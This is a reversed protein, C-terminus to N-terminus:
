TRSLFHDSPGDKELSSAIIHRYLLNKGRPFAHGISLTDLFGGNKLAKTMRINGKWPM